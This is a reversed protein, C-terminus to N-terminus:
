AEPARRIEGRPSVLLRFGWCNVLLDGNPNEGEISSNVPLRCFFTVRVSGDPQETALHLVQDDWYSQGVIVVGYSTRIFRAVNATQYFRAMTGRRYFATGAGFEGDDYGLLKGGAFRIAHKPRMPGQAEDLSFQRPLQGPEELLVQRFRPQLRWFVAERAPLLEQWLKTTWAEKPEPRARIQAILADREVRREQHRRQQEAEPLFFPERGELVAIARQASEVVEGHWHSDAVRRLDPVARKIGRHALATAARSVRRWDTADSLAAIAKAGDDHQPPFEAEDRDLSKEHFTPPPTEFHLITAQAAAAVASESMQPLAERVKAAFTSPEPRGHEAELQTATLAQLALVRNGTSIAPESAVRLIEETWVGPRSSYALRRVLEHQLNPPLPDCRRYLSIMARIGRDEQGDLIAMLSEVPFDRRSWPRDEVRALETVVATVTDDDLVMDNNRSDLVFLASRRVSFSDHTLLAIVANPEQVARRYFARRNDAELQRVEASWGLTRAVVFEPDRGDRDQADKRVLLWIFTGTVGLLLTVSLSVWGLTRFIKRWPM